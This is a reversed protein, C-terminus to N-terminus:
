AVPVATATSLYQCLESWTHGEKHGRRGRLGRGGEERGGARVRIGLKRALPTVEEEEDLYVNHKVFVVPPTSSSSSSSSSALAEETDEEAASSAKCL